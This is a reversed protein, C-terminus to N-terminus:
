QTSQPQNPTPSLMATFRAVRAMQLKINHEQYEHECQAAFLCRKADELERQALTDLSPQTFLTKIKRIM